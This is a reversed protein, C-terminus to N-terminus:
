PNLDTPDAPALDGADTVQRTVKKPNGHYFVTASDKVTATLSNTAHVTADAAGRASISLDAAILGAADLECSGTLRADFRRAKGKLTIDAAGESILRFRNSNIGEATVDAADEITLQDLNPVVISVRLASVTCISQSIDVTLTNNDVVTKIYPLINDDATVTVPQRKGCVVEVDFSGGVKVANFAATLDRRESKIRGNGELCGTARAGGPGAALLCIAIVSINIFLNRTM